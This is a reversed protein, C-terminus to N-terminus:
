KSIPRMAMAKVMAKTMAGLILGHAYVTLIGSVNKTFVGAMM